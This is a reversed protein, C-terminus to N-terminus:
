SGEHHVPLSKIDVKLYTDFVQKKFIVNQRM